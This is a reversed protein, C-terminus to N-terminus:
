HFIASKQAGKGHEAVDTVLLRHFFLDALVLFHLGDAGQGAANGMIKVVEEHIDHAQGSQDQGPSVGAVRDLGVQLEDLLLHHFTRREGLLQQGQVLGAFECRFGGVEIGEQILGGVQKAPGATINGNGPLQGGMQGGHFHVLTLYLLHHDIQEDIAPLGHGPGPFHGQRAPFHGEGLSKTLGVLPRGAAIHVEAESIGAFAHILRRQGPNEFRKEGSLGHALAGSQSQGGHIGNDFVVLADDPHVTLWALAGGKMDKQRHGGFRHCGLLGPFLREDSPGAGNEQHIIFVADPQHRLSHQLMQTVLDQHGGIPRLGQLNVVPLPM